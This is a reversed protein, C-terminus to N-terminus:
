RMFSIRTSILEVIFATFSLFIGIFLLEYAGLLQHIVLVKPESFIREKLYSRDVFKRSWADLLGNSKLDLINQNIQQALCSQRHLYICLNFSFISEEASHFFATPFIRENL